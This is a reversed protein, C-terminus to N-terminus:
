YRSVFPYVVFYHLGFSLALALTFYLTLNNKFYIKVSHVIECQCSSKKLKQSITNCQGKAQVMTNNVWRTEVHQSRKSSQTWFHTEKKKGTQIQQMKKILFNKDKILESFNNTM